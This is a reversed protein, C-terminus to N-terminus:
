RQPPPTRRSRGQGCLRVAQDWRRKASRTLVTLIHFLLLGGVGAHAPALEDAAGRGGHRRETYNGAVDEAARPEDRGALLDINGDNAAAPLAPGVDAAEEVERIRLDDRHSVGDFGFIQIGEIELAVRAAQGHLRFDFLMVRLLRGVEFHGVVLVEAHHQLLLLGDIGDEAGRGIVQVSINAYRRHALAFMDIAFLREGVVDPLRALHGPHRFLGAHRGLQPVLAVGAVEDALGTLHDPIPRNAIHTFDM